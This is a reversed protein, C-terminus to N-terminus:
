ICSKFRRRDHPPMITVVSYCSDADKSVVVVVPNSDLDTGEIVFKPTYKKLRFNWGIQVERIHGTLLCRVIDGRFYGRNECREKTHKGLRIFGEKNLLVKQIDKMLENRHKKM